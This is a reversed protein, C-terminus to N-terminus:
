PPFLSDWGSVGQKRWSCPRAISLVSSEHRRIDVSTPSQARLQTCDQRTQALAQAREERGLSDLQRIQDVDYRALDEPLEDGVAGILRPLVSDDSPLDKSEDPLSGLATPREMHLRM